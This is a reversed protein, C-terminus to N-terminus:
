RSAQSTPRVSGDAVLVEEEHRGEGVQEQPACEVERETHPGQVGVTTM